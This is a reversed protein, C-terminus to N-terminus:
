GNESPSSADELPSRAELPIGSANVVRCVCSYHGLTVLLAMAGKDGFRDLLESRTAESITAEAELEDAIRCVFNADGDLSTVPEPDLIAMLESDSIGHKRAMATHQFLEYSAHTRAGYRCIAIERLRPDFDTQYIGAVLAMWPELCEPALTLLRIINLGPLEALRAALEVPLESDSPLPISTM